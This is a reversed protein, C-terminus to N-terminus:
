REDDPTRGALARRQAFGEGDQIFELRNGFPDSAYFRHVDPLTDDPVVGAGAAILIRRLAELDNVRLAPHAKRAPSFGAEVGLHLITGPAEFWCGGRAALPHPKTVEVLGLLGAYFRRAVEEGGLPMALQVHDLGVIHM